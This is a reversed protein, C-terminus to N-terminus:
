LRGCGGLGHVDVCFPDSSIQILAATELDPNGVISGATHDHTRRDSGPPAVHRSTALAPQERRAATATVALACRSAIMSRRKGTTRAWGRSRPSRDPLADIRLPPMSPRRTGAGRRASNAGSSPAGATPPKTKAAARANHAANRKSQCPPCHAHARGGYPEDLRSCTGCVRAAVLQEKM